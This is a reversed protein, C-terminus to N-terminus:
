KIEDLVKDDKGVMVGEGTIFIHEGMPIPDDKKTIKINSLGIKNMGQVALTIATCHIIKM